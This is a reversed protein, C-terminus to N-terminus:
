SSSRNFAKGSQYRISKELCGLEIMVNAVDETALRQCTIATLFSIGLALKEETYKGLRDCKIYSDNAGSNILGRQDM